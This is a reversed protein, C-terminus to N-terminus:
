NNFNKPLKITFTTGVGLKSECNINGGLKDVILNYIISLGLGTGGRDGKTTFFPDFINKINEEPIGIGDDYFKISIDAEEELLEIKINGNRINEFGHIVANMILNTFIQAIAGPHTDSEIESLSIIEVNHGGPKLVPVLSKVLDELYEGWNIKRKVFNTKDVSINKVSKVLEKLRELNIKILYIGEELDQIWENVKDDSANKANAKIENLRSDVFTIATISIGLPTSIEHTIGAITEGLASMRESKAVEDKMKEYNEITKNLELNISKLELQAKEERLIAKELEKNRSIISETREKVINELEQNLEILKLEKDESQKKWYFMIKMEKNIWFYLLLTTVLIYAWGKITQIKAYIDINSVLFKLIKDSLLIWLLGFVFYKFVIHSVAMWKNPKSKEKDFIDKVIVEM